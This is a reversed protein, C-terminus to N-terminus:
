PLGSVTVRTRVLALIVVAEGRGLKFRPASDPRRAAAVGAAAADRVDVYDRRAAAVTVDLGEAPDTRRLRVALTGLFTEMSPYPGLTNTMRLVAGRCEGRRMADLVLRSAALKSRGYLSTPRPHVAEDTATGAPVPGYEHISGLQLFRVPQPVLRLAGLVREVPQVNAYTMEEETGGWGLTANVVTDVGEDALVAALEAGTCRALDRSLFRYPRIHPAEHRAIAVVHTGRDAFAACVHRGVCGTAGLVAVRRPGDAKTM